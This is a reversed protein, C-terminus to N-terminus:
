LHQAVSKLNGVKYDVEDKDFWCIVTQETHGSENMLTRANAFSQIETVEPTEQKKEAVAERVLNKILKLTYVCTSINTKGLFCHYSLVSFTKLGKMWGIDFCAQECIKAPQLTRKGAPDLNKRDLRFYINHGHNQSKLRCWSPHCRFYFM